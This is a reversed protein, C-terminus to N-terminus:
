LLGLGLGLGLGLPPSCRDSGQVVHKIDIIILADIELLELAERPMAHMRMRM